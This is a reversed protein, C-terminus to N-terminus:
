HFFVQSLQAAIGSAPQEADIAVIRGKSDVTIERYYAFTPIIEIGVDNGLTDKFTVTQSSAGDSVIRELQGRVGGGYPGGGAPVPGGALSWTDDAPAPDVTTRNQGLEYLNLVSGTSNLAGRPMTVVRKEPTDKVKVIPNLSDSDFNYETDKNAEDILENVKDIVDKPFGKRTIKEIKGPKKDPQSAM